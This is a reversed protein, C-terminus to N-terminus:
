YRQHIRQLACLDRLDTDRCFRFRFLIRSLAPKQRFTVNIARTWATTKIASKRHAPAEFIALGCSIVQSLVPPSVLAIASVALVSSVGAGSGSPLGDGGSSIRGAGAGAFLSISIGAEVGCGVGDGLATAFAEGFGEGL